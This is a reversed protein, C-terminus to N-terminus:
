QKNAPNPTKNEKKVRAIFNISCVIDNVNQELSTLYLIALIQSIKKKQLSFFNQQQM